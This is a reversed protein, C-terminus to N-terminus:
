KKDLWTKVDSDNPHENAYKMKESLSLSDFANATNAPPNDPTHNVSTVSPTFGSFDKESQIEKLIDKLNAAKGKEDYTIKDPYDSRHAIINAANESYGQKILYDSLTSENKAKAEKASIDAKYKEFEESLAKYKSESDAAGDATKKEAEKLKTEYDTIKNDAETLKAKLDNNEQKLNAIDEKLYELSAKNKERIKEIADRINDSPTEAAELIKRIDENSLAM